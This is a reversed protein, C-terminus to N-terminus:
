MAVDGATWRFRCTLHPLGVLSFLYDLIPKSEFRTMDEFCTTFMSNVFLAKRGTEPHVRVVPHINQTFLDQSHSYKMVAEPNDYSGGSVSTPNFAEGATHIANLSDLLAQMKPSLADYAGYMCSFMTDNGVPPVEIAHLISGLSPTKMYSNDSHWSEGFNTPAGAERVIEIVDPCKPMGQVIPHRDIEGFRKALSVQQEPTLNQGRFFVVGYLLFSDWIEEIVDDSLKSSLDVGSIEAGLCATVPTAEIHRFIKESTSQVRLNAMSITSKQLIKAAPSLIKKEGLVALGQSGPSKPLANATTVFSRALIPNLAIKRSFMM